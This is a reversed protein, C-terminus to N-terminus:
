MAPLSTTSSSGPATAESTSQPVESYPHPTQPSTSTSTMAATSPGTTSKATTSKTSERRTPTSKARMPEEHGRGTRTRPQSPPSSPTAERPSTTTSASTTRGKTRGTSASTNETRRISSIPTHAKASPGCIAHTPPSQRSSCWTTAARVAPRLTNGPVSRGSCYMATRALTKQRSSTVKPKPMPASPRCRLRHAMRTAASCSRTSTSGSTTTPALSSRQPYLLNYHCCHWSPLPWCEPTHM